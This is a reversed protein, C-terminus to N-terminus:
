VRKIERNRKEKVKTLWGRDRERYTFSARASVFNRENASMDFEATERSGERGEPVRGFRAAATLDLSFVALRAFCKSGTLKVNKRNESM